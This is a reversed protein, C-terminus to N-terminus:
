FGLEDLMWANATCVECDCGGRQKPRPVNGKGTPGIHGEDKAEERRIVELWTQFTMRQIGIGGYRQLNEDPGTWDYELPVGEPFNLRRYVLDPEEEM